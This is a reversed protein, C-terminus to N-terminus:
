LNTWNFLVTKFHPNQVKADMKLLTDLVVLEEAGEVKIRLCEQRNENISTDLAIGSVEEGSKLYLNVSYQHMCAIEIYDYQQCSVM